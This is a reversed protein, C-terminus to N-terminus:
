SAEPGSPACEGGLYSGPDSNRMWGDLMNGTWRGLVEEEAMDLGLHTALAVIVARAVNNRM